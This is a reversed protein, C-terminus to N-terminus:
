NMGEMISLSILHGPFLGLKIFWLFQLLTVFFVVEYNRKLGLMCVLSIAGILTFILFYILSTNLKGNKEKNISLLMLLSLSQGELAVWLNIIENSQVSILSFIVFFTFGIKKKIKVTFTM